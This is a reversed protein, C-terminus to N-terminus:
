RAMLKKMKDLLRYTKVRALNETINMIEGVEKFSRREFFRLELLEVEIPGLLEITKKLQTSQIDYDDEGGLEDILTNSLSDDLIVYRSSKQARFYGNCENIAIRYLYASFPLGRHKYKKINTLANLFVQQTIDATTDKDNIRKLIFYFIASFYRNYLKKFARPNHQSQHILEEETQIKVPIDIPRIKNIIAM